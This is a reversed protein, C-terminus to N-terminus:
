HEALSVHTAAAYSVICPLHKMLLETSVPVAVALGPSTNAILRLYMFPCCTELEEEIITRVVVRSELEEDIAVETDAGAVLVKFVVLAGPSDDGENRGALLVLM